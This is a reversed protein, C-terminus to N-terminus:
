KDLRKSLYNDSFFFTSFFSFISSGVGGCLVMVLGRVYFFVKLGCSRPLISLPMWCVCM